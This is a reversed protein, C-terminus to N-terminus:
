TAALAEIADVTRGFEDLAPTAKPGLAAERARFAGYLERYYWRVSSGGGARFRDWFPEGLTRFDLLIARANHLKDALSVRLEDPQKHAIDALYTTKRQRWPPKPETESDSNALVIRAVDEGFEARIRELMPRGGGDEVADHLLAAIAETESGGMELVLSSVALLHSVYPIETGKRLQRRHHDTALLLAADFKDSLLPRDTYTEPM